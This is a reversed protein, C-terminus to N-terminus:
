NQAFYQGPTAGVYRRFTNSFHSQDTFGTELAVQVPPTKRKLLSKAAEVRQLTRFLHPSIGTERKFTRLFHYQSLGVSRAVEKLSIKRDFESSLIDRAKIVPPHRFDPDKRSGSELGYRSFLFHCASIMLAEKELSDRSAFMTKFLNNLLASLLPDNLLTSSFEPPSNPNLELERALRAMANLNIHCVAYDLPRNDAPVGSHIQGPNLLTVCGPGSASNQRRQGLCYCHGSLILSILYLNDHFHEPFHHSSKNVRCLEIGPLAPDRYFITDIKPKM